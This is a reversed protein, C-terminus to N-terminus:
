GVPKPARSAILKKKSSEFVSIQEDSMTVVDEADLFLGPKVDFEAMKMEHRPPMGGALTQLNRAELGRPGRWFQLQRHSGALRVTKFRSVHKKDTLIGYDHQYQSETTMRGRRLHVLETTSLEVKMTRKSIPNSAVLEGKEKPRVFMQYRISCQRASRYFRTQKNVAHAVLEWNLVMGEKSYREVRHQHHFELQVAQLLAQDEVINWDAGDYDAEERFPPPPTTAREVGSEATRNAAQQKDLRRRKPPKPQPAVPQPATEVQELKCGSADQSSDDMSFSNETYAPSAAVADTQPMQLCRAVADYVPDKEKSLLIENLTSNMKKEALPPRRWDHFNQPLRTENMPDIEYLLDFADDEMKVDFDADSDPPSPPLWIPMIEDLEDAM